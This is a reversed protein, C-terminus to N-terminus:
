KKTTHDRPRLIAAQAPEIASDNNASPVCSGLRAVAFAYFILDLFVLAFNLVMRRRRIWDATEIWAGARQGSAVLAAGCVILGIGVAMPFFAPGISQGPMSPFTSATAVVAMGGILVLLGSVAQHFRM